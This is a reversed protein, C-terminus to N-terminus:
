AGVYIEGPAVGDKTVTVKTGGNDSTDLNATGKFGGSAQFLSLANQPKALVGNVVVHFKTGTGFNAICTQGTGTNSIDIFDHGASINPGNVKEYIGVNEFTVESAVLYLKGYIAGGPTVKVSGGTFDMLSGNTGLIEQLGDTTQLTGAFQGFPGGTYFSVNGSLDMEAQNLVTYEDAFDNGGGQLDWISGSPLTGGAGGQVKFVDNNEVPLYVFNVNQPKGAMVGYGSFALTGNNTITEGGQGDGKILSAESFNGHAGAFILTGGATISVGGGNSMQVATTTSTPTVGFQTAKATGDVTFPGAISLTDGSNMTVGQNYGKQVTVASLAKNNYDWTCPKNGGDNTGDFVATDGTGLVAAPNMGTGDNKTNWNALTSANTNGSDPFWFWTAPAIIPELEELGRLQVYRVAPHGSRSRGRRCAKLVENLWQFLNM